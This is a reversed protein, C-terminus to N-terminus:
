CSVGQGHIKAYHTLKDRWLTLIDQQIASGGSVFFQCLDQIYQVAGPDPGTVPIPERPPTVLVSPGPALATSDGTNLTSYILHSVLFVVLGFLLWGALLVLLTDVQSGMVKDMVCILDDVQEARDEGGMTWIDYSTLKQFRFIVDCCYQGAAGLVGALHSSMQQRQLQCFSCTQHLTFSYLRCIM